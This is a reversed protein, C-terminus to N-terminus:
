RHRRPPPLFGVAPPAAPQGGGRRPLARGLRVYLQPAGEAVGFRRQVVVEVQTLAVDWEDEFLRFGVGVAVMPAIGLRAEDDEFDAVGHAGGTVLLYPEARTGKDLLTYWGPIAMALSVQPGLMLRDILNQGAHLGASLETRQMWRGSPGGAAMVGWAFSIDRGDGFAGTLQAELGTTRYRGRADYPRLPEQASLTPISVLSVLLIAITRIMMPLGQDVPRAYV